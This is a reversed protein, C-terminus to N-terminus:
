FEEVKVDDPAESFDVDVCDEEDGNGGVYNGVVYGGLAAAIGVFITTLTPHKKAFDRVPHKKEVVTVEENNEYNENEM